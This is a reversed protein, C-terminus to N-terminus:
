GAADRLPQGVFIRWCLPSSTMLNLYRPTATIVAPSATPAAAQPELPEEAVDGAVEFAVVGAAAEGAADVDPEAM